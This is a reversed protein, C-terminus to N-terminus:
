FVGSASFSIASRKSRSANTPKGEASTENARTNLCKPFPAIEDSRANARRKIEIMTLQLAMTADGRQGAIQAKALPNEQPPSAAPFAPRKHKM